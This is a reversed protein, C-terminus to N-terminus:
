AEEALLLDVGGDDRETGIRFVVWRDGRCEFTLGNVQKPLDRERVTAVAKVNSASIQGFLSEPDSRRSYMAQIEQGDLLAPKGHTLMLVEFGQEFPDPMM